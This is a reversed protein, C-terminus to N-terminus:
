GLVRKFAVRWADQIAAARRCVVEDPKGITFGRARMTDVYDRAIEDLQADSAPQVDRRAKVCVPCIVPQGIAVGNHTTSLHGCSLHLIYGGDASPRIEEVTNM